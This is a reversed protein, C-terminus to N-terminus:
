LGISNMIQGSNGDIIMTIKKGEHDYRAFWIPVHLLETDSVDIQTHLQQIMHFQSHAKNSQLQDIMTKAQYKAAEEGIDGNLVQVGKPLKTIDFFTREELHFQYDKPQYENLAKLAVIPFNYNNDFETAKKVNSRSAGLTTGLVTGTVLPGGFGGRRGRGGLAAGMVAALAATTAIQGAEAAVNSAVISTRASATVVWYPIISLKMEELSSNEQLHRRLLGKDMMTHMMAIVKEKEGLVVPLMTQKQVSRWGDNALTITTGCYECTILMEGFKPNIPAGCSPCKLATVESSAIITPDKGAPTDPHEVAIRTGCKM